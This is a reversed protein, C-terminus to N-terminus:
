PQLAKRLAAVARHLLVDFTAPTVGLHKAVEDRPIEDLVRMQIAERYRPNLTGLARTLKEKVADKDRRAALADDMPTTKTAADLEREVDEAEWVVMRRRGRIMDIAVHLALTRLWPYFGVGRWEFSDIREVVKAYTESLADKALAESGLRPLLVCRYLTPGHHTLLEGLAVRDGGRAREALGRDRAREREKAERLEAERADDGETVPPLM